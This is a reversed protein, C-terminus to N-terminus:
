RDDEELMELNKFVIRPTVGGCNCEKYKRIEKIIARTSFFGVFSIHFVEGNKTKIFLADPNYYLNGDTYKIWSIEDWTLEKCVFPERRLTKFNLRMGKKCLFAGDFALRSPSITLRSRRFKWGYFFVAVGGVNTALALLSLAILWSDAPAARLDKILLINPFVVLSLFFLMWLFFATRTSFTRSSPDKATDMNMNEHRM